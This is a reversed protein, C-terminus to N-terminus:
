KKTMMKKTLPSRCIGTLIPLMPIELGFCNLISLMELLLGANQVLQAETVDDYGGQGIEPDVSLVEEELRHHCRLRNDLTQLVYITETLVQTVDGVNLTELTEISVQTMKGGRLLNELLAQANRSVEKQLLSLDM